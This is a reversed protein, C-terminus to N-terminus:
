WLPFTINFGLEEFWLATPKRQFQVYETPYFIETMQMSSCVFMTNLRKLYDLLFSKLFFPLNVCWNVEVYTCTSIFLETETRHKKRLEQKFFLLFFVYPRTDHSKALVSSNRWMCPKHRASSVFFLTTLPWAKWGLATHPLSFPGSANPTGYMDRMCSQHPLASKLLAQPGEFNM